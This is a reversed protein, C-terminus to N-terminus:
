FKLNLNFGITRLSPLQAGELGQVNGSSNASEPDIHPVNKKLIALNRGTLSLRVNSIATNGFLKDPFTYGISAERWKVFSADYTHLAHHGFAGAYRDYTEVYIDNVSGDEKVGENLHGGGDAVPDRKPNGKANNGATEDLQGAYKGFMNSTSFLTGGKQFDFLSSISIGKISFTTNVGGTFDALVSGLVEPTESRLYHGDEGVVKNGSADFVYNTGEITGYAQGVRANVSAGWLSGIQINDLGEVLEEVKSTNKAFNFGVDWTFMDNKLKVPTANLSLEIGKNRIKGANILQSSFGTTASTAVAIIQDKSVQDYYTFDLGVRNSLFNLQTGIEWSQTREPKLIPNNLSNPVTYIPNGDFSQGAGYTVNTRYPDTDNGVEAWGGRIKGFSLIKNNGLLESFVFSASVSPYLYSNDGTPLTSSWDNRATLDLYLMSKYGLSASALISNIKEKQFYDDYQVLSANELSYVGPVSLGGITTGVNRNYTRTRTAVGANVNLSIDEGFYRDVGLMLDSNIENVKRVGEVYESESAGGAAIREERYDSYFDDMVRGTITLWDTLDYALSVTGFIRDRQDNQFNEYRIWYPNDTYRPNSNTASERNWVRQSGDPNKYDKLEDMRLQRHHWQNFQQMINNGDYGTGSRGLGKTNVYNASVNAHLKEALTVGGSFNITNRKLSSNPLVGTKNLNTYSLRFNSNEDGGGLSINNNFTLGTDFFDKINDPSAEWPVTKEYNETDWEDWSNWPRYPQGEFKPGWSEDEGYGPINEGNLEYFNNQDYGGGYENQYDALILINDWSVGSNVSVGISKNNGSMSSGKKTTILIVGNAARSGYLAAANAGRLVTVSEIDDPNIDQAANGYDYGGAGRAQNTSTYNSNDMPIGDVVFLPQNEGSVSAAGRILIRSSGGLNGSAGTVQVGAVKGSLANVINTEKAENLASGDIEQVAYGLSKEDRKIGLATVVAEELIVGESLVVNISNSSGLVMEQTTFGTYSVVVTTAGEPVKLEYKGDLDTTTGITTGKVIVNAYPLPGNEDTITGSIIRQGFAMTVMMVLVFVLSLQKM